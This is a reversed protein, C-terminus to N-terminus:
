YILWEEFYRQTKADIKHHRALWRILDVENFTGGGGVDKGNVTVRGTKISIEIYLNQFDIMQMQHAINYCIGEAEKDGPSNQLLYEYLVNRFNELHLENRTMSKNLYEFFNVYEIPEEEVPTEQEM